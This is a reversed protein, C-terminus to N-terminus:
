PAPFVLALTTKIGLSSHITLQGGALRAQERMGALGYHGDRPKSADFGIGDDEITLALGDGRRGGTVDVSRAGSHLSVNRLAERAVRVFANAQLPSAADLDAGLICRVQVGTRDRLADAAKEIAKIPGDPLDFSTRIEGVAERAAKLGARAEQEAAGIEEALPGGAGARRLLSLRATLDVLSRVFTDHLDHAIRLREDALAALRSSEAAKDAEARLKRSATIDRGIAQFEQPGDDDGLWRAQWATWITGGTVDRLPQEFAAPGDACM